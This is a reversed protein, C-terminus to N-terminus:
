DDEWSLYRRFVTDATHHQVINNISLTNMGEFHRHFNWYKNSEDIKRDATGSSVSWQYCIPSHEWSTEGVLMSDSAWREVPVYDRQGPNQGPAPDYWVLTKAYIAGYCHEATGDRNGIGPIDSTTNKNPCYFPTTELFSDPLGDDQNWYAYEPRFSDDICEKGLINIWCGRLGTRSVNYLDTFVPPFCGNYENAYTHFHIGQSHLNSICKANRALDKAQSLAPTLLSLLLAIIAIVVLLEILTFAGGSYPTVRIRM